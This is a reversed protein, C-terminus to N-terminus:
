RAERVTPCGLVIDVRGLRSEKAADCSSPCLVVRTPQDNALTEDADYYWGDGSCAALGDVKPLTIVQDGTTAEVNVQEFNRTTSPLEYDCPLAASRIQDLADLFRQATDVDAEVLFPTETLDAAAMDDLFTTQSEILAVADPNAQNVAPLVGIVFTNLEEEAAEAILNLAAAATNPQQLSECGSPVGDTALILVSRRTRDNEKWQRLQTFAGGLAVHTPTNAYPDIYSAALSELLADRGACETSACRTTQVPTM